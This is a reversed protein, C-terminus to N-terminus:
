RRIRQCLCSPHPRRHHDEQSVFHFCPDCRHQLRLARSQTHRAPLHQLWGRPSGIQRQSIPIFSPVANKATEQARTRQVAASCEATVSDTELHWLYGVGRSYDSEQLACYLGYDRWGLLCNQHCDFCSRSFRAQCDSYCLAGIKVKGAPCDSLPVGVGRGYRQKWCSPIRIETM